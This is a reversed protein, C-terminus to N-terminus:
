ASKPQEPWPPVIERGRTLEIREGPPPEGFMAWLAPAKAPESTVQLRVADELGIVEWQAFGCCDAELAALESLEASVAPDARYRLEVGTDTATKDLLAREALELWRERRAMGESETLTCTPPQDNRSHTM